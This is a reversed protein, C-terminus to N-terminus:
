ALRCTGAPTSSSRKPARVSTTVPASTIAAPCSSRARASPSPKAMAARTSTPAPSASVNMLTSATTTAQNGGRRTGSIVCSVPSTPCSPCTSDAIGNAASSCPGPQVVANPEAAASPVATASATSATSRLRGGPAGAGGGAAVGRSTSCLRWCAQRSGPVRSPRQVCVPVCNEPVTNASSQPTGYRTAPCPMVVAPALASSVSNTSTPIMAPGSKPSNVARWGSRREHSTIM